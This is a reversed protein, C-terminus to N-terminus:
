PSNFFRFYVVSGHWDLAYPFSSYLGSQPRYRRRPPTQTRMHLLQSPTFWGLTFVRKKPFWLGGWILLRPTGGPSLRRWALRRRRASAPPREPKLFVVTETSPPRRAADSSMSPYMIRCPSKTEWSSRPIIVVHHIPLTNRSLFCFKWMFSSTQWVPLWFKKFTM